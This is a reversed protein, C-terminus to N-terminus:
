SAEVLSYRFLENGIQAIGNVQLGIIQFHKILSQPDALRTYIEADYGTETEHLQYLYTWKRRTACLKGIAHQTALKTALTSM